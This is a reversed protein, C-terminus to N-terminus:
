QGENIITTGLMAAMELIVRGRADAKKYGWDEHHAVM